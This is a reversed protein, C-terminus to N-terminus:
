ISPHKPPFHVVRVTLISAKPIVHWVQRNYQDEMGDESLYCFVECVRVRGRLMGSIRCDTKFRANCEVKDESKDKYCHQMSERCELDEDNQVDIEVNRSHQRAFVDWSRSPDEVNCCKEGILQSM